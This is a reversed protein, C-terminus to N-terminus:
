KKSRGRRRGAIAALAVATLVGTGPEPVVQVRGADLGLSAVAADRVAPSVGKTLVLHMVDSPFLSSDTSGLILKALYVGDALTSTTSSGDGLMRYSVSTHSEDGDATFSIGTAPSIVSPFKIEAHPGVDSTRGVVLNVGSGRFMELETAGADVFASGNWAKLGDTFRLAFQSGVPFPAPNTAANYGYGYAFGPGSLFEPQGGPLLKGNPHSVWVNASSLYLPMVYASTPATLAESYPGDLHLRRTVIKGGEVTAQIQPGHARAAGNVVAGAVLALFVTRLRM